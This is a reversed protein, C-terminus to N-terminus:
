LTECDAFVKQKLLRSEKFKLVLVSLQSNRGPLCFVLPVWRSRLPHTLFVWCYGSGALSKPDSSGSCLRQSSGWASGDWTYKAYYYILSVNNRNSRENWPAGLANWQLFWEGDRSFCLGKQPLASCSNLLECCMLVLLRFLFRFTYSTNKGSEKLGKRERTWLLKQWNWVVGSTHREWWYRCLSPEPSPSRSALMSSEAGLTSNRSGCEWGQSHQWVHQPISPLRAPLSCNQKRRSSYLM